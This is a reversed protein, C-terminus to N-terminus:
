CLIQLAIRYIWPMSFRKRWKTSDLLMFASVFNWVIGNAVTFFDESDTFQCKLMKTNQMSRLHPWIAGKVKNWFATCKIELFYLSYM